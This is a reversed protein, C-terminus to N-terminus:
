VLPPLTRLPFLNARFCWQKVHPKTQQGAEVITDLHENIKAIMEGTANYYHAFISLCGVLLALGIGLNTHVLAKGLRNSRSAEGLVVFSSRWRVHHQDNATPRVVHVLHDIGAPSIARLSLCYSGFRDTGDAPIKAINTLM